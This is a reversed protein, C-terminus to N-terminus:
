SRAVAVISGTVLAVIVGLMIKSGLDGGGAGISLVQGEPTRNNSIGTVSINTPGSRSFAIDPTAGANLGTEIAPALTEALAPVHPLLAQLSM